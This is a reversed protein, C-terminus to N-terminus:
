RRWWKALWALFEFLTHDIFIFRGCLASVKKYRGFLLHVAAFWYVSLFVTMCSIEDFMLIAMVSVSVSFLYSGWSFLRKCWMLCELGQKVPQDM